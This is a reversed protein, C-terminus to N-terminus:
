TKKLLALYFQRSINEWRFNKWARKRGAEGLNKRLEGNELLRRMSSEIANLDESDVLLGSVGDEIAEVAGGAKGGIVPKGSANAELFVIGFGETDGNTLTRNPMIFVDGIQYFLVIEDEPIEGLFFVNDLLKESQVIERLVTEQPGKGGILYVVDPYDNVISKLAKIVKNHGKREDLRGITYFIFKGNLDLRKKKSNVKSTMEKIFFKNEVGPFLLKRPISNCKLFKQLRKETFLSNCCHMYAQQYLYRLLVNSKLPIQPIEEGHFFIIYPIGTVKKILFALLVSFGAGQGAVVYEYSEYRTLKKIFLFMDLLYKLWEFSPMFSINDPFLVRRVFINKRALEFDISKSREANSTIVTAKVDKINELLNFFYKQVGGLYPPFLKTILIIKIM